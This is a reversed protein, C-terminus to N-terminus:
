ISTFCTTEKSSLKMICQRCRRMFTDAASASRGSIVPLSVGSLVQAFIPKFCDACLITEYMPISKLNIPQAHQPQPQAANINPLLLKENNVRIEYKSTSM